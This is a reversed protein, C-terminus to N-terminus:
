RSSWDPDKKFFFPFLFPDPQNESFPIDKAGWSRQIEHAHVDRAGVKNLIAIAREEADSGSVTVWLVLGGEEALRLASARGIGSGAGTVVCVKGAIRNGM